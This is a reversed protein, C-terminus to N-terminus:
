VGTSDDDRAFDQERLAESAMPHSATATYVPDPLGAGKSWEKHWHPLPASRNADLFERKLRELDADTAVFRHGKAPKNATSSKLLEHLYGQANFILACIEDEIDDGSRTSYGRHAKWWDLFHRHASKVYQTQPIGLQWNDSERMDGNPLRRKKHMYEGFREIVLPSLFGEFDLKGTDTDRTAGTSFQRIQSM